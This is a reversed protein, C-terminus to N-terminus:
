RCRPTAPCAPAAEPVREPHRGRSRAVSTSCATVSFSSRISAGRNPLVFAGRFVRASASVDAPGRKMGAGTLRATKSRAPPRECGIEPRSRSRSPRSRGGDDGTAGWAPQSDFQSALPAGASVRFRSSNRMCPGPRPAMASSSIPAQASAGSTFVFKLSEAGPIDGILERMRSALDKASTAREDPTTMFVAVQALHAGTATASRPGTGFSAAGVQSFVGRVNRELLRTVTMASKAMREIADEPVELDRMRPPVGVAAALNRLIEVGRHAVQWRDQGAHSRRCFNQERVARQFEYFANILM